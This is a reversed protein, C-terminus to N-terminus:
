INNKLVVEAIEKRKKVIVVVGLTFIALRILKSEFLYHSLISAIILFVSLAFMMGEDVLTREGSNARLIRKGVVFHGLSYVVYCVLTTYAAAAFGYMPIFIFNLVINLIAASISAIMLFGTKEYYFEPFSLFNYLFIFFVSGAIPPVVNVAAAYKESGFIAILEPSILMLAIAISFVFVMVLRSRNQISKIDSIRLKEYIWPTLASNIATVFLQALMGISYAVGYLAVDSNGTMKSIMIRDGQNLLMGSLYHPLMPLALVLAYKWYQRDFFVRGKAFQSFMIIGCIVVEVFTTSVVRALAKEQSFYVAILGLVPNLFSKLLTVAVLSKYRYEFRQRGSWFALAPTIYIEIFMFLIMIPELGILKQFYKFFILVILFILSTLTIELGQMSSIFRDRDDKFRSMANDNIGNFLYFTSIVTFIQLWSLYVSYIGYQEVSMFRTFMPATIFSIGKQLFSCMTFWLAAKTQINLLNYKEFIKM